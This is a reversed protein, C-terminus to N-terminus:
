CIVNKWLFSIVKNATIDALSEDEVWKTFYNMVVIIFQRKGTAKPFPGLIDIGWQCFPWPSPITTM